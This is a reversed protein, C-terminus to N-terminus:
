NNNKILLRNIKNILAIKGAEMIHSRANQVSMIHTFQWQTSTNNKM